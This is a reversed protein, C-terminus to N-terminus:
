SKKEETVRIVTVPEINPLLEGGVDRDESAWSYSKEDIPTYINIASAKKGDSLTFSSEVYWKEGKKKWTGEGFGGDSDFMWSRIKKAVPDWGIIQYGDVLPQDYVEIIFKQIIFNRYRDFRAKSKITVDEDQDEWSGILFDLAKLHEIHSSPADASIERVEDIKWAGDEKVFQVSVASERAPKGDSFTVKFRGLVHIVGDEPPSTKIIKVQLKDAKGEEFMEKLAEKIAARGESVEGTRPHIRHGNVSWFEGMADSDHRNFAETYQEFLATAESPQESSNIRDCSSFLVLCLGLQLILRRM